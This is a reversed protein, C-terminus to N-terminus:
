TRFQINRRSRNSDLDFSFNQNYEPNSDNILIPDGMAEQDYPLTLNTGGNNKWNTGDFWAYYIDQRDIGQLHDAFLDVHLNDSADLKAKAYLFNYFVPVFAGWTLGNDDSIQYGWQTPDVDGRGKFFCLM